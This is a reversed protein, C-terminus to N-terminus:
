AEAMRGTKRIEDLQDRLQLEELYDRMGPRAEVYATWAGKMFNDVDVGQEVCLAAAESLLRGVQAQWPRPTDIPEPESESTKPESANPHHQV